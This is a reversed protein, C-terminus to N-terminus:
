EGDKTLRIRHGEVAWIRQKPTATGVYVPKDIWLSLWVHIETPTPDLLHTILLAVPKGAGEPTDSLTICSRTFARSAGPSGDAGVEYRFHGGFPFQHERTQPTLLYVLIPDGPKAPPLTVTNFRANACPQQEALARVTDTAKVLRIQEATLSTDDDPGFVRFGTVTKEKADGAFIAYPTADKWGYYVVTLGDAKPTIVWGDIRARAAPTTKEVMVDTTVWAAQDYLYIQEGRDMAQILAGEDAAPLAAAAPGTTLFCLALVLTITRVLSQM